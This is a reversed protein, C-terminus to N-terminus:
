NWQVKDIESATSRDSFRPTSRKKTFKKAKKKRPPTELESDSDERVPTTRKPPPPKYTKDKVTDDFSLIDEDASRRPRPPPSEPTPSSAVM